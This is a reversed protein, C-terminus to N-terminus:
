SIEESHAETDKGYKGCLVSLLTNPIIMGIFVSRSVNEHPFFCFCSYCNYCHRQVFLLIICSTEFLWNILLIESLRICREFVRFCCQERVFSRVSEVFSKCDFSVRCYKSHIVAIFSHCVCDVVCDTYKVPILLTVETNEPMIVVLVHLLINYSSKKQLKRFPYDFGFVNWTMNSVNM